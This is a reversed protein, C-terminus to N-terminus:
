QHLLAMMRAYTAAMQCMAIVHHRAGTKVTLDEARSGLAHKASTAPPKKIASKLGKETHKSTATVFNLVGNGTGVEVEVAAMVM